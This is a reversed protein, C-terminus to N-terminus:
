RESKFPKNYMEKTDIQQKAEQKWGRNGMWLYLWKPIGIKSILAIAKEPIAEGQSLAEAAVELAKKQNRVMGGLEGLPRGSIMAGGGMALGGAWSYGVQKAFIRCVNVAIKNHNAEPFGSNAIAVFKKKGLHLKGKEYEAILELTKIVQSHLSDVYLPFALIILDSSDVLRLMVAQKEESGLCQNLFVKGSHVGKQELKELLYTGLSNSTSNQGKPSGVLLAAHTPKQSQM